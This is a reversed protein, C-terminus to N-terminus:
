LPSRVYLVLVDGACECVTFWADVAVDSVLAGFGVTNPCDVVSVALTVTLAGPAPVGEPVTSNKSPAVDSPVAGTEPPEAAILVDASATPECESVATYEPLALKVPLVDAECECVTFGAEVAVDSVLAGLGVNKLWDVVSVAVIVTVAGPAPAGDPVTSNKSPAVDSPVAGTELPEAASATEDSETPACESM